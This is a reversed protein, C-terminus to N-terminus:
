ASAALEPALGLQRVLQARDFSITHEVIGGEGVRMLMMGDLAVRRDTAPLEGLSGVLTDEHTGELVFRLAARDDDVIETVVSMQSDPFARQWRTTYEAAADAGELRIEGPGELVVDDAYLSRLREIDHGNFAAVSEAALQRAKAM